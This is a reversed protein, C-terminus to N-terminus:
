VCFVHGHNALNEEASTEDGRESQREGGLLLSAESEFLQERDLDLGRGPVALFGAFGGRRDGHDGGFLNAGEAIAGQGLREVVDAAEVRARIAVIAVDADTAERPGGVVVRPHEDEEVALPQVLVEVIGRADVVLHCEVEFRHLTDLDHAPRARGEIAAAGHEAHDVDDGLGRRLLGAAVQPEFGAAEPALM